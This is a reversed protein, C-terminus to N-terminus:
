VTGNPPEEQMAKHIADLVGNVFRPSDAGGYERAIEIAENIVSAPPAEGMLLETTAVRLVNREVPSLRGLSWRELKNVIREDVQRAVPWFASLITRCYQAAEARVEIDVLFDDVNQETHAPQFDWQCLAQM